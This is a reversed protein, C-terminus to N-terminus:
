LLSEFVSGVAILIEKISIPKTFYQDVGLDNAIKQIHQDNRGSVMLFPIKALVSDTKTRKLLELGDMLPMDVDSIILSPSHAQIMQWGVQGNEAELTEYNELGLVEALNARYDKNDDIILITNGIM